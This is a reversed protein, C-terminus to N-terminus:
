LTSFSNKVRVFKLILIMWAIIYIFWLFGLPNVFFSMVMVFVAISYFVIRELTPNRRMAYYLSGVVFGCVAPILSIGIIGFDRYLTWFFTYTNYGSFLFPNEVFGFYEKMPYKLQILAFFWDFTFSGYSFYELKSMAHVFNEVNMVVYMYPETIFAFKSSFKMESALYLGMQILKGSRITAVSYILLVGAVVFLIMTRFRIRWTAYYFLTFVLVAVMILQYRQLLFLYSLITVVMVIRLVWRKIQNRETFINYVLSFFVIVPMTHTFLGVGFIFYDNRAVDPHLTFIPIYGKVFYIVLYGSCYVFFGLLILYFLLTTNMKQLKIKERMEDVSWLSKGLNM